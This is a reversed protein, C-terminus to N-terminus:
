SSKKLRERVCLHLRGYTFVAFFLLVLEHFSITNYRPSVHKFGLTSVLSMIFFFYFDSESGSLNLFFFSCTTM